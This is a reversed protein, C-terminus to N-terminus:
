CGGFCFPAFPLHVGNQGSHEGDCFNVKSFTSPRVPSEVRGEM